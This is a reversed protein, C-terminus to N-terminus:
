PALAGPLRDKKISYRIYEKLSLSEESEEPFPWTEAKAMSASDVMWRFM